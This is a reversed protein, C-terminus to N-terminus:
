TKRLATFTVLLATLATLGAALAWTFPIGQAQVIPAFAFAAIGGGLRMVFSFLSQITSRMADDTLTNVLTMLPPNLMSMVLMYGLYAAVFYSFGGQLALLVMAGAMILPLVKLQARPSAKTASAFIGIAIPGLIAMAFYGATIWGFAAYTPSGTIEILRPQWYSEVAFMSIGAAAGLLLLGRLTRNQVGYAIAARMHKKIDARDKGLDRSEGERFLAYTALLHLAMLTAAILVNWGTAPFLGTAPLLKPIYGGIVAGLTIGAAMAAQFTGIYSELEDELGQDKLREVMWADVTGSDLAHMLGIAVSAAFLLAFSPSFLMLLLAAIGVLKSIRFIRLRGHIDAVAGFPLEFLATAAGTTGFLISIQWLSLGKEVYFVGLVALILGFGLGGFAEHTIMRAKFSM